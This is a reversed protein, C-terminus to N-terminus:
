GPSIGFEPSHCHLHLCTAHGSSDQCQCHALLLCSLHLGSSASLRPPSCLYSGCCPSQEGSREARCCPGEKWPCFLAQASSLLLVAGTCPAASPSIFRALVCLWSLYRPMQAPNIRLESLRGVSLQSNPM